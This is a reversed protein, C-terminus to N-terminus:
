YNKVLRCLDLWHFKSHHPTDLAKGPEMRYAEQLYGMVVGFDM